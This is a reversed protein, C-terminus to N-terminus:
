SKPYEQWSRAANISPLGARYLALQNNAWTQYSNIAGSISLRSTLERAYGGAQNLYATANSLERAAYNGYQGAPTDVRLYGLAQNLYTGANSLERAAYTAYDTEPNGGVNVKNILARGSTLDGIAQTIRATMSDIAADSTARTEAILPRGSTLDAIAQTIRATMSSVATDISTVKSIAETIQTRLKNIWGLAVHAVCGQILLREMQPSLTSSTETLEHLKDCYLYVDEDAVPTLTTDIERTSSDIKIVNRYQRPTNGVKYELKEIELLDEISSINLEKSGATTKLTEVVKYPSHESLEAVCEDIYLDLEDDQFDQDAGSVFEDRLMQRITARIASLKRSM